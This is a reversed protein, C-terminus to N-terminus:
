ATERPNMGELLAITESLGAITPTEFIRQLELEVALQQRIRSVVQTALLSHGGLDFFNDHIGIRPLNLVEMWIEAVLEEKVTRPAVYGEEIGKDRLEAHPLGRRDVKGNPTLPLSELKVFISPVMYDPLKRKLDQRLENSEICTGERAVWYGLLRKEGSEDERAVVVADQVREHQKLVAEVEGLEIRFGRVKVQDDERGLFEINGDKLYRALDGTRYLREGPERCFPNPIFREATLEPRNLYGRALGAGGIYLEGVVGVPVPEMYQDLIYMQCNTLPRGILIPETGLSPVESYSVDAAVESSGYLNVLRAHGVWKKSAAVLNRTLPEGSVFVYRLLGGAVGAVKSLEKLLSPVLVVRTIRRVRLYRTFETIDMAITDPIVVQPIGQLLPSLIEPICDIFSISTKQCCVEDTGFPYERWMWVLRNSMSRHSGLIGKPAGSSGSTYILYASNDASILCHLNDSPETDTKEVCLLDVVRVAENQFQERKTGRTLLLQIQADEIMFRLRAKPYNPDLPVYVGGAKLIGILGVVMELSREMCVGVPVECGVGLKSILHALRNARENLQQYTIQEEEFVLALAQPTKAAQEEFMEVLTKQTLDSVTDNWRVLIQEREDETLLPLEHIQQDPNEVMSELLVTWHKLMRQITERDFLETSYDLSGSLGDEGESISLSLDFKTSAIETPERSVKLGPLAWQDRRMNQLAFMVQFLPNRNLDRAPDLEKVLKEFPLDQHAYAGLCMDRVTGLWERVSPNGSLDGRLVLTNM